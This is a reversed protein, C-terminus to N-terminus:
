NVKSYLEILYSKCAKDFPELGTTIKNFEELDEKTLNALLQEELTKIKDEVSM